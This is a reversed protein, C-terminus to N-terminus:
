RSLLTLATMSELMTRTVGGFLMEWWRSHGYGGMVLLDISQDALRNEIATAAPLGLKEETRLTVKVGHRSLSAALDTGALEPADRSAGPPDVSFVEVSDASKLLPLADFAARAAEKSGNWAILARHIPQPRTMLRPILLLPRGSEFLFSELDARSDAAEALNGQSAVILDATRACEMVHTSSYGATCIYSRWEFPVGDSQMAGRFIAEVAKTESHAAQQLAEVASPDPIEMPAILPVTALTEAHLGIVHASFQEALAVSFDTVQRANAKSDLAALITKYSM